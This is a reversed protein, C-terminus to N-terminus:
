THTQSLRPQQRIHAEWLTVANTVNLTYTVHLIDRFDGQSTHTDVSHDILVGTLKREDREVCLNHCKTKQKQDTGVLSICM